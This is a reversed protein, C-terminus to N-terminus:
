RALGLRYWAGDEDPDCLVTLGEGRLQERLEHLRSSFGSGGLALLEHTRAPGQRLRALMAERRGMRKTQIRSATPTFEIRKQVGLRPHQEDWHQVRCTDSCYAKPKGHRREQPPVSKECSPRRCRSSETEVTNQGESPQVTLWLRVARGAADREIEWSSSM